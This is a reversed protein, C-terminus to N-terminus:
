PYWKKIFNSIPYGNKLKPKLIRERRNILTPGDKTCVMIATSLRKIRGLDSIEYFVDYNEISRWVEIM